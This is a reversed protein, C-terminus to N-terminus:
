ENGVLKDPSEDVHVERSCPFETRTALVQCCCSDFPMRVCGCLSPHVSPRVSPRPSKCHRELLSGLWHSARLAGAQNRFGTLKQVARSNNNINTGHQLTASYDRGKSWMWFDLFGSSKTRPSSGDSFNRMAGEYSLDFRHLYDACPKYSVLRAEGLFWRSIVVNPSRVSM